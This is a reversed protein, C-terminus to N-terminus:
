LETIKQTLYERVPNAFYKIFDDESILDSKANNCLICALVCNSECYGGDSDRREIQLTGNKWAEKQPKFIKREPDFLKRLDDQSTGCYHCKQPQERYWNYFKEFGGFGEAREKSCINYIEQIEAIQDKLQTFYVNVEDVPCGIKSSLYGSITKFKKKLEDISEGKEKGHISEWSNLRQICYLKIFEEKYSM